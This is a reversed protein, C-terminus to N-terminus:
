TLQLEEQFSGFPTFEDIDIECSSFKSARFYYVVMKRKGIQHRHYNLEMM